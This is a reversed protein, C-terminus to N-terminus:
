ERSWLSCFNRAPDVDYRTERALSSRTQASHTALSSCITCGGVIASPCTPSACTKTPSTRQGDIAAPHALRLHLCRANPDHRAHTQATSSSLSLSLSRRHRLVHVARVRHRETQKDTLQRKITHGSSVGVCQLWPDLTEPGGFSSFWVSLSSSWAEAACRHPARQAVVCALCDLPILETIVACQFRSRMSPCRQSTQHISLRQSNGFKRDTCTIM